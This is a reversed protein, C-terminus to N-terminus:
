ARAPVAVAVALNMEATRAAVQALPPSACAVSRWCSLDTPPSYDSYSSPSRKRKKAQRIACSHKMSARAFSAGLTGKQKKKSEEREEGSEDFLEVQSAVQYQKEGAKKKEQAAAALSTQETTCAAM